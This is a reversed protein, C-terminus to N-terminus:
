PRIKASLADQLSQAIAAPGGFVDADFTSPAPQTTWNAVFKATEVPFSDRTTLLIPAHEVAMAAGGTLADAYTTGSALGFLGQNDQEFNSSGPPDPLLHSSLFLSATDAATEYRDKGIVAEFAKGDVTEAFVLGSSANTDSCPYPGHKSSLVQVACYAQGGLAVVHSTLSTAQPGSFPVMRAMVFAATAPDTITAGNSLLIAAPKGQASLNDGTAAPGAALADAFDNGTVVIASAPNDLGSTAIKMATGYRDKGAYRTVQYGDAHLQADVASSVAAQGGLVYVTGGSPLVRKIEDETTKTLGTPSTLLLPGQKYAALPVGALADAFGEGSALVVAKAPRRATVATPTAATDGGADAWLSQSVASSTLYRDDGAYRHVSDKASDVWLRCVASTASTGTADTVTVTPYFDANFGYSHEIQGTAQTVDTADDGFHFRYMLPAKMSAAAQGILSVTGDVDPTVALAAGSQPPAAPAKGCSSVPAQGAQPTAAQAEPATGVAAAAAAVSTALLFARQFSRM